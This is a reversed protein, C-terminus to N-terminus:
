SAVRRVGAYWRGFALLAFAGAAEYSVLAGMAAAAPVLLVLLAWTLAALGALADVHKSLAEM